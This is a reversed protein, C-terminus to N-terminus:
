FTLSMNGTSVPFMGAQEKEKGDDHHPQISSLACPVHIVM